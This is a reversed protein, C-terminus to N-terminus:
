EASNQVWTESCHSTETHLYTRSTFNKRFFALTIYQLRTFSVTDFLNVFIIHFTLFYMRKRMVQKCQLQTMDTFVKITSKGGHRLFCMIQSIM